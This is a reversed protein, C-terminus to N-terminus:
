FSFNATASVTRPLAPIVQGGGFYASPVYYKKDFLNSISLGLKMDRLKYSVQADAVTASPTFFTNTTDGPLSSHHTVGLGFGLGAWDGGNVDYRGALRATQKPVNFLQKNVRAVTTDQVIVATQSTLAAILSLSSSAQWRLDLDVGRSQQLGTQISFSPNATDAVAANKRILDFWALTASVGNLDKLRFGIETQKSEEPKPPTAFKALIPVKIDESYGVFTSVQPTM